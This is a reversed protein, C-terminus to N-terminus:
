RGFVITRTFDFKEVFFSGFAFNAVLVGGTLGGDGGNGVGPAGPVRSFALLIAEHHHDGDAVFPATPPGEGFRPVLSWYFSSLTPSFPAGLVPASSAPLAAFRSALQRPSGLSETAHSSPSSQLKSWWKWYWSGIRGSRRKSRRSRRRRRRRRRPMILQRRRRRRRRKEQQRGVLLRDLRGDENAARLGFFM